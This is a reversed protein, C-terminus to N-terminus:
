HVITCPAVTRRVIVPARANQFAEPNKRFGGPLSFEVSVRSNLLTRGRLGRLAAEAARTDWFEVFRQTNRDPAERVQRIDGFRVLESKLEEDTIGERLHFLVITGNNPPRKRDAIPQPLAFRVIWPPGGNVRCNRRMAMAARLDFFRVTGQEGIDVSEVEGFRESEARLEEITTTSPLNAIVISRDELEGPFNFDLETLDDM